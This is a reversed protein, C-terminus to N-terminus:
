LVDKLFSRVEAIVDEREFEPGGHGANEVFRLRARGSGAVETILDAFMVSHQVPVIPDKPAHQFLFPPCDETIWTEPNAVKVMSHAVTITKGILKSEPSESLSHDADGSGTQHFYPDMKLFNTPGYWSIVAQVASSEGAYGMSLDELISVGESAGALSALHGGASGGWVAVRSKDLAYEQAKARLCRIAAKVDHIPAPFKAESSLRYNISAVAYGEALLKLPPNLQIDRKDCMMWAGGHIFVILPWGGEPAEGEPLYLDFKQFESQDAYAIDPHITKVHSTDAWPLVYIGKPGDPSNPDAM